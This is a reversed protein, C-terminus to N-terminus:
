LWRGICLNVCLVSVVVDWEGDFYSWRVGLEWRCLDADVNFVVNGIRGEPSNWWTKVM